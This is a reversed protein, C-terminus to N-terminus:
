CVKKLYLFFFLKSPKVTPVYLLAKIAMPADTKYHLRYRPKDFSNSVFRYFEVYEEDSIDKKDM